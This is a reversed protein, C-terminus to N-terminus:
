SSKDQLLSKRNSEPRDTSTPTRSTACPPKKAIQFRQVVKEGHVNTPKTPQFPPFLSRPKEVPLFYYGEQVMPPPKNSVTTSPFCAENLRMATPKMAEGFSWLLYMCAHVALATWDTWCTRAGVVWRCHMFETWYRVSTIVLFLMCVCIFVRPSFFLAGFFFCIVLGWLSMTMDFLIQCAEISNM